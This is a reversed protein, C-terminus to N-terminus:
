PHAGRHLTDLNNTSVQALATPAVELSPKGTGKRAQCSTGVEMDVSNKFFFKLELSYLTNLCQM